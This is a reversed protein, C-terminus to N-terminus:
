RHVTEQAEVRACTRMSRVCLQQSRVSPLSECARVSNSPLTLVCTCTCEEWHKPDASRSPTPRAMVAEDAGSLKWQMCAHDFCFKTAFVPGPCTPVTPLSRVPTNRFPFACTRLMHARDPALSARHQVSPYDPSCVCSCLIRLCVSRGCTMRRRKM